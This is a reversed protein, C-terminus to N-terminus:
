IERELTNIYDVLEALQEYDLTGYGYSYGDNDFIDHEGVEKLQGGYNLDVDQCCNVKITREITFSSEKGIERVKNQVSLRMEEWLAELKETYNM